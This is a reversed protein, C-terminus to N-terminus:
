LYRSSSAKDNFDDPQHWDKLDPIEQIAGTGTLRLTKGARSNNYHRHQYLCYTDGPALQCRISSVKNDFHAGQVRIRGYDRINRAAGLLTLSRGGYTNHEFLDIWADAKHTIPGRAVPDPRYENFRMLGGELWHFSSYVYLDGFPDCFLSAAADMNCQRSRCPLLRSSGRPTIWLPPTLLPNADYLISKRFRVEFLDLLDRGPLVPAGPSDNHLGAIFLRVAGNPSDPQQVLFNITQYKKFIRPNVEFPVPAPTGGFGGLFDPHESLYFDFRRKASDSDSWAAVLFHGNPLKTLAVAGAEFGPRALTVSDSFREIRDPDRTHFFRIESRDPVFGQRSREVPVALIDGCLDMGGAHWLGGPGDKLEDVLIAQSVQDDGAPHEGLTVNSTWPGSARRSALRVVFLHSGEEPDAGSVVMHRGRRLRQLGQFHNRGGTYRDDAFRGGEHCSLYDARDRIRDITAVVDEHQPNEAVLAGNPQYLPPEFYPPYQPRDTSM